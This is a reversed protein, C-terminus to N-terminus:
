NKWGLWRAIKFLIFFCIILTIYGSYDHFTHGWAAGTETDYHEGAWNGVLGILAIRLSNIFLCLPLILAVMALNGWWKLGGILMFFVTFATIALVLKLGSCPIGVDLSFKPLLITTTDAMQPSTVMQLMKYAIKTNVAQLPNTYKDIIAEALPMAFGLYLIAPTLRLAWRGGAVFWAGVILTLLMSMALVGKMEALTAAYTVWLLPVLLVLAAPCSRVPIEKLKPWAKYVIFGSIFPVLFGHTYYGDENLWLEPLHQIMPWFLVGCSVAIFVGPWFGPSNVVKQALARWDMSAKPM